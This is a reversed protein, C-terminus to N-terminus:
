SLLGLAKKCSLLIAESTKEWSFKEAQKFGKERLDQKLHRNKALGQIAEAMEIRNLPDVLIAADGCVEPISTKNSAVIPTGCAMSEVLTIGFGESLSPHVLFDASGYISPLDAFQVYDLYIIRRDEPLPKKNYCTKGVIVLTHPIYPKLSLFVNIMTHVNKYPFLNGVFLIYPEPLEYKKINSKKVNEINFLDRNFSIHVVDIRRAEVRSYKLLEDKVYNSIVIVRRAYLHLLALSIRFYISSLGFQKPYYLPHLDNVTVVLPTSKIFPYENSPCFLIDADIQKLRKNLLSNIYLFRLLNNGLYTSGKIKETTKRIQGSCIGSLPIPSFLATNKHRRCIETCTERIFVGLGTPTENLITGNIALRM